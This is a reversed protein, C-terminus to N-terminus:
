EAEERVEVKAILPVLADRYAMLKPWEDSERDIQRILQFSAVAYDSDDGQVKTCAIRVVAGYYPVAMSSLDACFKRYPKLSTAPLSMMLPLLGNKTALFIRKKNKCAKGKGKPGSDWANRPCDECNYEFKGREEGPIGQANIDGHGTIGDLSVCSPIKDGGEEKRKPWYANVDQHHVIIGEISREARAGGEASIDPVEFITLGGSPMKVVSLDTLALKQNGMNERLVSMNQSATPSFLMVDYVANDITAVEASTDKKM